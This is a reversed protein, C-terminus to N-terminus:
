APAAAPASDRQASGFQFADDALSHFFVAVESDPHLPLALQDAVGSAPCPNPVIQQWWIRAQLSSQIKLPSCSLGDKPYSPPGWARAVEISVTPM